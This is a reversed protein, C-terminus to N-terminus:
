RSPLPKNQKNKKEKESEEYVYTVYKHHRVGYGLYRRILQMLIRKKDVSESEKAIDESYEKLKTDIHNIIIEALSDKGRGWKDERGVQYRLFNKVVEPSETENAVSVLNRVQAEQLKNKPYKGNTFAEQILQVIEDEKAKIGQQIKLEKLTEENMM